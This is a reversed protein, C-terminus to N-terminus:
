FVQQDGSDPETGASQGPGTPTSAGIGSAGGTDYTFDGTLPGLNFGGERIEQSWDVSTLDALGGPVNTNPNGPSVTSGDAQFEVIQVENGNAGETFTTQKMTQAFSSVGNGAYVFSNSFEMKAGATGVTEGVTPLTGGAAFTSSGADLFDMTPLPLSFTFAGADSDGSTPIVMDQRAPDFSKDGLDAEANTRIEGFMSNTLAGATTGGTNACIFCKTPDVAGTVANILNSPNFGFATSNTTTTETVVQAMANGGTLLIAVGLGAAAFAIKRKMKM